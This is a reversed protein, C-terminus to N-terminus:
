VDVIKDRGFVAQIDQVSWDLHCTSTAQSQNTELIKSISERIRYHQHEASM